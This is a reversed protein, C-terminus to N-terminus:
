RLCDLLNTEHYTTMGQTPIVTQTHSQRPKIATKRRDQERASHRLHLSSSHRALERCSLPCSPGAGGSGADEEEGQQLVEGRCAMGQQACERMQNPLMSVM